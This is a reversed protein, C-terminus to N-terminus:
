TPLDVHVAQFTELIHKTTTTGFVYAIAVYGLVVGDCIFQWTICTDLRTVCNTFKSGSFSTNRPYTSDSIVRGKFKVIVEDVTLHESPNYFKSLKDNLIDFLNRIKWLRDYDEDCFAFFTFIDTRHCLTVVSLQTSITLGQGTNDNRGTHM